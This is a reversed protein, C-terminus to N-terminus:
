LLLLLARFGFVTSSRVCKRSQPLFVPYQFSLLSHLMDQSDHLIQAFTFPNGYEKTTVGSRGDILTDSSKGKSM